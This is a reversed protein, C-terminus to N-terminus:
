IVDRVSTLRMALNNCRGFLLNTAEICIAEYGVGVFSSTGKAIIQVRNTVVVTRENM